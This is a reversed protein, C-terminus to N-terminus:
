TPLPSKKFVKTAYTVREFHVHEVEQLTLVFPPWETLNVLCHTSPQMLVM